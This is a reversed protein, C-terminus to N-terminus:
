EGTIKRMTIIQLAHGQIFKFTINIFTLESMSGKMQQFFVFEPCTYNKWVNLRCCATKWWMHFVLDPHVYICHLFCVFDFVPLHHNRRLEQMGYCSYSLCSSMPYMCSIWSYEGVTLIYHLASDM